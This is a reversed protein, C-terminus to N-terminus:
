GKKDFKIELRNDYVEQVCKSLDNGKWAGFHRLLNHSPTINQKEILGDEKYKKIEKLNKDKDM